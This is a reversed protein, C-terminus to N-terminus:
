KIRVKRNAAVMTCGTVNATKFARKIAAKDIKTTTITETTKFEDPILQEDDVQCVTFSEKPLTVSGTDWEILNIDCAIMNDKLYGMLWDKQSVVRKKMAQLRKIEVDIATTNMMKIAHSVQMGKTEIDDTIAELTDEFAEVPLEDSLLMLGKYQDRLEYLHKM